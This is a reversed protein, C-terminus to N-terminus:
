HDAGPQSTDASRQRSFYAKLIEAAIPAASESGQGGNYLFVLVVIEPKEYPAFAAFWAHTPLPKGNQCFGEKLAIDDCFEATGTKAAVAVDPLNALWATGGTSAVAQRLGERILALNSASIPLQRIVKPAFGQVVVSNALDGRRIERVIQPQYLTGGNAIAAYANALQLPTVTVFGQGIAANYSDGLTWLEGYTLRKWKETPILGAAEGPLGIGTLAGFGFAQAYRALRDIGLGPFNNPPYGGGVEYFFVDCSHALAEIVNQNGHGSAKWCVFPQGYVVIRGPDYITTNQNIVGEELAGAATVIKFTSGPPYQGGIAHNILPTYPDNSLADWDATSIGRAFLNNDYTPLSVSALVEGTQPNLAIVVGSRVPHGLKQSAQEMGHKLAAEAIKQLDLDLTLVVSDGPIAPEPPGVTRLERGVVDEEIYKRGKTGRLVDELAAELGSAGVSDTAPDYGKAIYADVENEPVRTMFGILASTLPGDLYERVPELEVAVGPMQALEEQLTLATQRDVNKKIVVPRYPANAGAEVLEKIGPESPVSGQLGSSNTPSPGSSATTVPMHLQAALRTYIAQVAPADEPLYAPTITVNFSPVNRVLLRGARDYLVGRPAPIAVLRFRNEDALKRYTAGQVVQLRLMQAALVGFAIVVILRFLGLRYDPPRKETM